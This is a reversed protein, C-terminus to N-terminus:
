IEGDKSGLYHCLTVKMLSYIDKKKKKRELELLKEHQVGSVVRSTVCVIGFSFLIM